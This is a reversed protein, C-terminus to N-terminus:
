DEQAATYGRGPWYPWEEFEAVLGEADFRLVWLDRYEQRPAAYVVTARVM